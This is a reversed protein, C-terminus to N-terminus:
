TGTYGTGSSSYQSEGTTKEKVTTAAEKAQEKVESTADTATEKVASAADSATAKVSEMANMALPELNDKMETAAQSLGSKVPETVQDKVAHGAQKELKTAPFLTSALWGAGFAVLGAAFPNGQARQRAFEPAGTVVDATTSAVTSAADGVASAADGVAHGASSMPGGASAAGSGVKWKAEDASGMIKDKADSFADKVKDVKREMVRAPSVKETLTDVDRGLEARTQEIEARIEGPEKGM